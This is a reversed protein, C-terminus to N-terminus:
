DGGDFNQLTENRRVYCRAKTVRGLRGTHGWKNGIWVGNAVFLSVAFQNFRKM